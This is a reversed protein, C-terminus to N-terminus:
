QGVILAVTGTGASVYIRVMEVPVIFNGNQDSTEGILDPHSQWGDNANNTWQITYTVTGTVECQLSTPGSGKLVIADSYGTGTITVRSKVM